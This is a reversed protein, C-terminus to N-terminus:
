MLGNYRVGAGGPAGSLTRAKQQGSASVEETPVLILRVGMLFVFRVGLPFTRIMFRNIAITATHTAIKIAELVITSAL